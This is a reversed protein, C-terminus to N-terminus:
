RLPTLFFGPGNGVFPDLSPPGTAKELHDLTQSKRRLFHRSERRGRPGQKFVSEVLEVPVSPFHDPLPGHFGAKFLLKQVLNKGPLFLVDLGNGRRFPDPGLGLDKEADIDARFAKAAMDFGKSTVHGITQRSKEPDWEPELGLLLRRSLNLGWNEQVGPVTNPFNGPGVLDFAGVQMKAPMLFSAGQNMKEMFELVM